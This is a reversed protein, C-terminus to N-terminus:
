LCGFDNLEFNKGLAKCAWEFPNQELYETFVSIELSLKSTSVPDTKEESLVDDEEDEELVIDDDLDSESESYDDKVLVHSNFYCSWFDSSVDECM